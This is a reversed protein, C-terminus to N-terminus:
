GSFSFECDILKMNLKYKEIKEEVTKMAEPKREENKKIIEMDRKTAIRLVPKLPPIIRSDDVESVPIVVTAYEHGRATDVIVGMGKVYKESDKGPSFYYIKGNETFSVGTIKVM